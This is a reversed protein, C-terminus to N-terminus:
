RAKWVPERKELFANAGEQADETRFVDDSCADEIRYAEDLSGARFGLLASKKTAQVALPANKAIERAWRWAADM